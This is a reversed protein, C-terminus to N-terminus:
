SRDNSRDAAIQEKHKKRLELLRERSEYPRVFRKYDRKPIKPFEKKIEDALEIRPKLKGCIFHPCEACNKVNQKKVCSRVPCRRDIIKGRNLCGACEVDGPSVDMNFYKKWGKSIAERQFLSTVNENFAPCLDCRNGCRAIIARRMRFKLINRREIFFRLLEKFSAFM